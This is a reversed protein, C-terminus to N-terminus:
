DGLRQTNRDLGHGAFELRTHHILKYIKYM